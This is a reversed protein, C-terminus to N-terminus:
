SGRRWWGRTRTADIQTRGSVEQMLPALARALAPVARAAPKGLNAAGIISKGLVPITVDPRAGLSREIMSMPLAGRMNAHNLITVMQSGAGQVSALHRIALADRLSAVDARLVVAVHRALAMIQRGGPPPMPTDVVVYNFKQRLLEVVRGVGADTPGIAQTLPEDAAIVRLREEVTVAARELFLGDVREPSELAIRLGPGTKVGAMLAVTGRHLHLDLLAVHSHLDRSLLTALGLAVTSAGAGGRAGCVLVLRGGREAAHDIEKGAVHPGFIRAVSDRTLPKPLYENIGLDHVLSRYLGIDPNTGIALVLMDPPCVQALADLSQLPQDLGTIDVLLVSLQSDREVFRVADAVEGRRVELDTAYEVLGGRLAAESREDAVFAVIRGPRSSAAGASRRVPAPTVPPITAAGAAAQSASM